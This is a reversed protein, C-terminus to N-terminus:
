TGVEGRELSVLVDLVCEGAAVRAVADLGGLHYVQYVNGHCPLPACFCGLRQGRISEVRDRFVSETRMRIPFDYAFRRIVEARNMEPTIPYPNGLINISRIHRNRGIYVDYEDGKTINAVATSRSTNMM